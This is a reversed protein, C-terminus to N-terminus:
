ALHTSIHWSASKVSFSPWRFPKPTQHFIAVFNPFSVIVFHTFHVFSIMKDNNVRLVCMETAAAIAMDMDEVIGYCM